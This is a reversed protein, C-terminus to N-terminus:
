RITSQFFDLPKCIIISCHINQQNPTRICKNQTYFCNNKSILILIKNKSAHHYQKKWIFNADRIMFIVIFYPKKSPVVQFLADSFTSLMEFMLISQPFYILWQVRLNANERSDGMYLVRYELKTNHFHVALKKRSSFSFFQCRVATTM